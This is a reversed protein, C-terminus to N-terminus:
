EGITGFEAEGAPEYLNLTVGERERALVRAEAGGARARRAGHGADGGIIM